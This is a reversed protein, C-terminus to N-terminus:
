SQPRRTDRIHYREGHYVYYISGRDDSLLLTIAEPLNKNIELEYRTIYFTFKGETNLQRPQTGKRFFGSIFKGILSSLYEKAKSDDKTGQTLELIYRTLDIGGIGLDAIPDSEEEFRENIHERVIKM